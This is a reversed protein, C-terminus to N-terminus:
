NERERLIERIASKVTGKSELYDIGKSDLESVMNDGFKGAVLKTVGARALLEVAQPAARGSTDSFPNKEAKLLKGSQDFLLFFPARAAHKSVNSEKAAGNSAIAFM